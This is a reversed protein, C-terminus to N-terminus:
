NGEYGPYNRDAVTLFGSPIGTWDQHQSTPFDWWQEKALLGVTGDYYAINYGKRHYGPNLEGCCDHGSPCHYNDWMAVPFRLVLSDIKAPTGGAGSTHRYYYSGLCREHTPLTAPDQSSWGGYRRGSTSSSWNHGMSGYGNQDLAPCFFFRGDPLYGTTFFNLLSIPHGDWKM